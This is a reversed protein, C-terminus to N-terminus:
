TINAMKLSKLTPTFSRRTFSLLGHEVLARRIATRDISDQTQQSLATDTLHGLQQRVQAQHENLTHRFATRKDLPFPQRAAWIQAPTPGNPGQPYNLENAQHRAAETDHSTWFAPRGAHAALHLTRVQLAGNGAECAGNFEPTYPPSVLPVVGYAHLFRRTADAIFGSGNDFKLVLPRGFLSFLAYLVGITTQADQSEVPLWCLTQGSALDRVALLYPYCGDVPFPPQVHDTAWVTGPHHWHLVYLLRQNDQRCHCRFRLLLDQAERRALGPFQAQFTPLSLAADTVRLFGIAQNRIAVDARQCPRGLPRPLLDNHCWRYM